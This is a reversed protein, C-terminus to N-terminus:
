IVRGSFLVHVNNDVSSIKQTHTSVHIKCTQQTLTTPESEGNETVTIVSIDYDIGPELGYVTYQGTGPQVTDEFIPVSEGAAVVTIRYGTIATTNLPSWRLSITTDSVEEFSLDTLQPVKVG